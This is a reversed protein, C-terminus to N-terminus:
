IKQYIISGIFGYTNILRELRNNHPIENLIQRYFTRIKDLELRTQGKGKIKRKIENM